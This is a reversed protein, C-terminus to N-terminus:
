QRGVFYIERAGVRVFSAPNDWVARFAIYTQTLTIPYLTQSIISTFTGLDTWSGDSGNTTDNSGQVTFDNSGNTPFIGFQTLLTDQSMIVGAYHGTVQFTASQHYTGTDNDFADEPPRFGNSSLAFASTALYSDPQAVIRLFREEGVPLLSAIFEGAVTELAGNYVEIEFNGENPGVTVDVEITTCDDSVRVDDVTGEWGELVVVSDASFAGGQITFTATENVRGINDFIATVNPRYGLRKTDLLFKSFNMVSVLEHMQNIDNATPNYTGLRFKLSALRTNTTIDTASNGSFDYSDAVAYPILISQDLVWRGLDSPGLDNPRLGVGEKANAYFVYTASESGVYYPQADVLGTSPLAVLTALSATFQINTVALKM